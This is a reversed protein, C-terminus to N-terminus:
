KRKLHAIEAWQDSNTKHIDRAEERSARVEDALDDVKEAVRDVKGDVGDVKTDVKDLDERFNTKHSNQVQQKVAVMDTKVTKIDEYAAGLRSIEDALQIIKRIAAVARKALPWAKAIIGAVISLIILAAVWPLIPALFAPLPLGSVSAAVILVAGSM